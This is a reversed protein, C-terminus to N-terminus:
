KNLLLSVAKTCCRRHPTLITQLSFYFGFLTLFSQASSVQHNSAAPHGCVAVNFDWSHKGQGRLFQACAKESVPYSPDGSTAPLTTGLTCPGSGSWNLCLSFTKYYASLGRPSCQLGEGPPSSRAKGLSGGALGLLSCKVSKIVVSAAHLFFSILLTVFIWFKAKWILGPLAEPQM